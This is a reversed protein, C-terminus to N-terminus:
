LPGFSIKLVRSTQKPRAREDLCVGPAWLPGVLDCVIPLRRRAAQSLKADSFLTALKRKGKFGLPVLTDGPESARFFLPGKLASPEIETELSARMPKNGSASDFYATFKWGFVDSITEGPVTLPYRFPEVTSIERVHIAEPTWEITVAGGEATIAGRDTSAVQYTQESDLQGGVAEVGLRVARRFVVPPMHAMKHRDFLAELDMTLFRLVGNLPIECQELAHAAMGNLYRDEEDAIIGLRAIAQDASPNISRLEPLVRHRIRARSFSL